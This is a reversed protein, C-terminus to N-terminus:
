EFTICYVLSRIIEFGELCTGNAALRKDVEERFCTSADSSNYMGLNSISETVIEDTRTKNHCVSLTPAVLAAFLLMSLLFGTAKM